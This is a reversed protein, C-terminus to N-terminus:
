GHVYAPSPAVRPDESRDGVCARPTLPLSVGAPLGVGDHQRQGIGEALSERPRGATELTFTTTFQQDVAGNVVLRGHQPLSHYLRTVADWIQDRTCASIDLM